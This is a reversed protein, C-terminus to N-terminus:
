SSVTPAARDLSALGTRRSTVTRENAKSTSLDVAGVTLARVLSSVVHLQHSTVRVSSIRTPGGPQVLHFPGKVPGMVSM